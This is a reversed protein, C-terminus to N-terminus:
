LDNNKNLIDFITKGTQSKYGADRLWAATTYEWTERSEKKLFFDLPIELMIGKDYYVKGHVLDKADTLSNWASLKLGNKFYRTVELRLGFDGALFKGICPKILLSIPKINIYANFFYQKLCNYNYYINQNNIIKRLKKSFGLGTYKRKWLISGEIGLSLSSNHPSWLFEATCGGYNIQYYGLSFRAYINQKPFISLSKQLYCSDLSPILKKRYNVYDTAVNPLESPNYFDIDTINKLDSIIPFNGLVNYYIKKDLFGFLNARFGAQYKIKGKRNGFFTSLSPSVKINILKNCSFIRKKAYYHDLNLKEKPHLFSFEFSNINNKKYSELDKTFYSYQHSSITNTEIVIIYKHFNKSFHEKLIEEIKTKCDVERKYKENSIILILNRGFCNYAEYAQTLIFGNNYFISKLSKIYNKLNEDSIQKKTVLNPPKPLLGETKSFNYNGLIYGGVDKIGLTYLSLSLFDKITISTSANLNKRKRNILPHPSKKPNSYDIPDYELTLGFSKFFSSLKFFPFWSIAGFFGKSKGKFCGGGLGLSTEINLNLFIKTMVIYYSYFLKSGLFDELGLALGPFAYNSDEPSFLALKLNAGRDLFNGFGLNGMNPEKYKHFLRYTISTELNKFIQARFSTNIYPHSFSTGFGLTGSSMMRASPTIIYGTSLTSNFTFPFIQKDQEEFFSASEIDQIFCNLNRSFIQKCFLLSLFIKIFLCFILNKSM